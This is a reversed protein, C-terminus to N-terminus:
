SWLCPREKEQSPGGEEEENKRKQKPNNSNDFHTNHTHAHTRLNSLRKKDRNQRLWPISLSGM